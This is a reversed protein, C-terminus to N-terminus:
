NSKVAQVRLKVDTVFPHIAGGQEYPVFIWNRVQSAIRDGIEPKTARVIEVDDVLGSVGVRIRLEVDAVGQYDDTVIIREVDCAICQPGQTDPADLPPPALLTPIPSDGANTPIASTPTVTACKLEIGVSCIGEQAVAWKATVAKEAPFTWYKQPSTARFDVGSGDGFLCTQSNCASFQEPAWKVLHTWTEGDTSHMVLPVNLGGGPKDKGIVEGGAAWYEGNYASVSALGTSPIDLPKWSVGGDKTVLLKDAYYPANGESMVIIMHSSDLAVVTRVWRFGKLDGSSLDIKVAEWSAGGDSTRYITHRTQILGRQDDSFSAAYVVPAPLSMRTWTTGGDKSLFLAGGTGAAYVFRGNSAGIALLVGGGKVLHRVNWTRGGDTSNAVFEDAGCIWLIGGSATIDLPRAQLAITRWESALAPRPILLLALILVPGEIRALLQKMPKKETRTLGVDM